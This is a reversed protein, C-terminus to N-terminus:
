LGEEEDETEEPNIMSFWKEFLYEHVRQSDNELVLQWFLPDLVQIDGPNHFGYALDKYWRYVWARAVNDFHLVSQHFALLAMLFRWAEDIDLQTSAAKKVIYKSCKFLIKNWFDKRQRATPRMSNVSLRYLYSLPHDWHPLRDTEHALCFYSERLYASGIEHGTIPVVDAISTQTRQYLQLLSLLTLRRLWTTIAYFNFVHMNGIKGYAMIILHRETRCLEHDCFFNYEEGRMSEVFLLPWRPSALKEAANSWTETAGHQQLFDDFRADRAPQQGLFVRARVNELLFFFDKNLFDTELLAMVSPAPALRLWLERPVLVYDHSNAYFSVLLHLTEM